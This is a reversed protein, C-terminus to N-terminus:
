IIIRCVDSCLAAAVFRHGSITIEPIHLQDWTSKMQRVKAEFPLSEDIGNMDAIMNAVGVLITDMFPALSNYFGGHVYGIYTCQSNDTCPAGTSNIYLFKRGSM